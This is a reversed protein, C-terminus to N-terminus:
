KETNEACQTVPAYATYEYPPYGYFRNTYGHQYPSYHNYGYYYPRYRNYGYYDNYWSDGFGWDDGFDTNFSFFFAQANNVAFLMFVSLVAVKALHSFKM